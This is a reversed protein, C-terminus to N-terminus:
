DVEDDVARRLPEGCSACFRDGSGHVAGCQACVGGIGAERLERLSQESGLARELARLEVDTQLASLVKGEVLDPRDREFRRLEVIFGGLDRLQVERLRQLYRARRRIRGRQLFTPSRDPPPEPTTLSTAPEPEPAPAPEPESQPTALEPEPPTVAEPEPEPPTVAEPEPEPQTVAEPEPEPEALPPVAAEVPEPEPALVPAGGNTQTEAHVPPGGNVPATGNVHSIAPAPPIESGPPPGLRSSATARRRRVIRELIGSM